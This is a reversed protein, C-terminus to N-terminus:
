KKHPFLIGLENTHPIHLYYPSTSTSAVRHLGYHVTQDASLPHTLLEELLESVLYQSCCSFNFPSWDLCRVWKILMETDYTKVLKAAYKAREDYNEDPDDTGLSQYVHVIVTELGQAMSAMKTIERFPEKEADDAKQNMVKSVVLRLKKLSKGSRELLRHLIDWDRQGHTVNLSLEELTDLGNVFRLIANDDRPIGRRGGTHHHAYHGGSLQLELSRLRLNQEALYYIFWLANYHHVKLRRVASWDPLHLGVKRSLELRGLSIDRMFGMVHNALTSFELEQLRPMVPIQQDEELDYVQNTGLIEFVPLIQVVEPDEKVEHMQGPYNIRRPNLYSKDLPKAIVLKKVSGHKCLLKLLKPLETSNKVNYNEREHANVHLTAIHLTYLQPSILLPVDLGSLDRKRTTPDIQGAREDSRFYPFDVLGIL